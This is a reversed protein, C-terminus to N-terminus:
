FPQLTETEESRKLNKLVILKVSNEEKSTIRNFIFCMFAMMGLISGVGLSVFLMWSQDKVPGEYIEPQTGYTGDFEFTLAPGKVYVDRGDEIWKRITEFKM